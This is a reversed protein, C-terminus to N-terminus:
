CNGSLILRKKNYVFVVSSGSHLCNAKCFKVVYIFTNVKM